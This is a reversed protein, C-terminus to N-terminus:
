KQKLTGKGKAVNLLVPYFQVFTNDVAGNEGHCSYCNASTPIPKAKTGDKGFGFFAWKGPFRKEDKVEAEIGILETQFRGSKNISGESQSIRLELVFITKDPWQGTKLFYSYAPRSVFVNDFAPHAARAPDQTPSYNMGLGSSLFVWERYDTPRLLSGDATFKPVDAAQCVSLLAAFAAALRSPRPVRLTMM